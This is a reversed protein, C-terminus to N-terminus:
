NMGIGASHDEQQELHRITMRLEYGVNRLADQLDGYHEEDNPYYVITEDTLLSQIAVLALQLKPLHKYNM